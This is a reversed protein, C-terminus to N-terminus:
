VFFMNECLFGDLSRELNAIAQSLSPQAIHIQEAAKGFGGHDIVALFYGLQRADM